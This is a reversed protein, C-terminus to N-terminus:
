AEGQSKLLGDVVEQNGIEINRIVMAMAREVTFKRQDQMALLKGAINSVVALLEAPTMGGGHARLADLVGAYLAQHKAGPVCMGDDVEDM